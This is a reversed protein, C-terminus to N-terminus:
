VARRGTVLNYIFLILAIVLLLHILSGGLHMLFGVLWLVVLITIVTWLLNGMETEEADCIARAQYKGDPYPSFWPRVAIFRGFDSLEGRRLNKETSPGPKIVPAASSSGEPMEVYETAPALVPSEM